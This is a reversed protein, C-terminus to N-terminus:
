SSPVAATRDGQTCTKMGQREAKCMRKNGSTPLLTNAREMAEPTLPCDKLSFAWIGEKTSSGFHKGELDEKKTFKDM